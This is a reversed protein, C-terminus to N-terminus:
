WALVALGFIIGVIFMTDGIVELKKRGEEYSYSRRIVRNKISDSLRHMFAFRDSDTLNYGIAVLLWSLLLLILRM